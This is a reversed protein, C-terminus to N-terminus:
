GALLGDLFASKSQEYLLRLEDLSATEPTQEMQECLARFGEFGLNAASGKLFHLDDANAQPANLILAKLKEEVEELFLGTVEQFDDDGLDDKM